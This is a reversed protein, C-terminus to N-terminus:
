SALHAPIPETVGIICERDITLLRGFLDPFQLWQSHGKAVDDKLAQATELSVDRVHGGVM